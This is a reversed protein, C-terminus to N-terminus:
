RALPCLTWFRHKVLAPPKQYEPADTEMEQSEGRRVTPATSARGDVKKTDSKEPM